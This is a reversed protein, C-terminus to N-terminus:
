YAIRLDPKESRARHFVISKDSADWAFAKGDYPDRLEAGSVSEALRVVEVGKSRLQTALLAARRVGELNAVNFGYQAYIGPENLNAVITGAFNYIGLDYFDKRAFDKSAFLADAARTIAPHDRDFLEATALLRGASINLTAQPQFLYKGFLKGMLSNSGLIDDSEQFHSSRIAPGMLKDAFILENAMARTMSRERVSFPELWGDPVAKRAKSAPLRRLVLNGLAFHRELASAAILKPVVSSSDVLAMRWFQLDRELLRKCAVDGGKDAVVWAKFLMLRQAELVDGFPAFPAHADSPWLEQWQKFEILREYRAILKVERQTWTSLQVRNRELADACARNNEKCTVVLSKLDPDRSESSVRKEGPVEPMARNSPSAMYQRLWEVRSLGVVSADADEPASFGMVYVFANDRDAVPATSEAIKRLKLAAESPPEDKRNIFMVVLVATLVLLLVGVISKFLFSKLKRM